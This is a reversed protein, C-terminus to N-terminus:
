AFPNAIGRFGGFNGGCPGGGTSAGSLGPVGGFGGPVGTTNGGIFIEPLGSFHSYFIPVLDSSDPLFTWLSHYSITIVIFIGLYHTNGIEVTFFVM